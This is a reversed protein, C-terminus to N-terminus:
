IPHCSQFDQPPLNFFEKVKCQFSQPQKQFCVTFDHTSRSSVSMSTSSISGTSPSTHHGAYFKNFHVKLAAKSKLLDKHLEVDDAYDDKLGIYGIQPDLVAYPKYSLVRIHLTSFLKCTAWLFYPLEDFKYFYGSLKRHAKILAAKINPSM